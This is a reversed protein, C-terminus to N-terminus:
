EPDASYGFTLLAFNASWVQCTNMTGLNGDLGSKEYTAGRLDHPIFRKYDPPDLLDCVELDASAEPEPTTPGSTLSSTPSGTPSTSTGADPDGTSSCGAAVCACVLLTTTWRLPLM